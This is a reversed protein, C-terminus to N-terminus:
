CILCQSFTECWRQPSETSLSTQLVPQTWSIDSSQM